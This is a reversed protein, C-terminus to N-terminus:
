YKRLLRMTVTMDVTILTKATERAAYTDARIEKLPFLRTVSINADVSNIGEIEM